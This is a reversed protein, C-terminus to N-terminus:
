VCYKAIERLEFHYAKIVADCAIDYTYHFNYFNLSQYYRELDASPLSIRLDFFRDLYKSADFDSGYYQKITHQLENINVSFVYTIRDNSFYHKIRELLRVAYSPKCRDLEDIYVVLRSGKELLLSDLFEKIMKQIGKEKKLEQLPDESKFSDILKTWKKLVRLEKIKPWCVLKEFPQQHWELVEKSFKFGRILDSEDYELGEHLAEHYIFSFLQQEWVQCMCSIWMSINRYKMLSLIEYKEFGAEQVTEVFDSPDIITEESCPQSMLNDWLQNQFDTAEDEVNAFIPQIREFFLEVGIM